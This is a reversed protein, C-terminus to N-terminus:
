TKLLASAKYFNRTPYPGNTVLRIKRLAAIRITLKPNLTFNRWFIDKFIFFLSMNELM